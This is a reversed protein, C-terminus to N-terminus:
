DKTYHKLCIRCLTINIFAGTNFKPFMFANASLLSLVAAGCEPGCDVFNLLTNEIRKLRMLTICRTQCEGNNTFLAHALFM